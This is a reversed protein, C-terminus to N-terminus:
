HKSQAAGRCPQSPDHEQRRLAGGKSLLGLKKANSLFLACSSITRLAGM